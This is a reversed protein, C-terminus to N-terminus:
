SELPVALLETDEQMRGGAYTYGFLLAEVQDPQILQDSSVQIYFLGESEDLFGEGGGWPGLCLLETGDKLRLGVPRPQFLELTEWGDFVADMRGTVYVSTPTLEATEITINTGELETDLRVARQEESGQLTWSLEWTEDVIPEYGLKGSEYGLGHIRVTVERGTLPLQEEKQTSFGILYELPGSAPLPEEFGGSMMSPFAGDILVELGPGLAPSKGEPLELGEIRLVIQASGNDVVTQQASVTVSGATASSRSGEAETQEPFSSLGSDNAYQIQADTANYQGRLSRSWQVVYFTFAAFALLTLAAAAILILKRAPLRAAREKYKYGLCRSVAELTGDDMDNMAFLIEESLM